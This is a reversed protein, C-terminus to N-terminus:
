TIEFVSVVDLIFIHTQGVFLLLLFSNGVFNKVVPPYRKSSNAVVVCRLVIQLLADIAQLQCRLCLWTVWGRM